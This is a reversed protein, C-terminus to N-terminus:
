REHHTLAITRAASLRENDHKGIIDARMQPHLRVQQREDDNLLWPKRLSTDPVGIKGVHHLAATQLLLQVSSPGM